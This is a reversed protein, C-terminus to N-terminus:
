LSRSGYRIRPDVILYSLDVALNVLIFVGAGFLTVGQVIPLDRTSIGRLALAGLGPWGFVTEVLVAGGLLYGVQAGIVTIIPILANKLVHRVLVPRPPLGKAWATRMYDQHVVELMTSRTIRAVLAVARAALALAPLVLHGILDLGGGGIPSYMGAAPLWRLELSFVVMLVIGLWFAPMGVGVTAALMTVRDFISNRRVAAIMGAIVGLISSILLASVTLIFTARFKDFLEPLVPRHTWISQGLDGRVVKGLWIVYQAPLPRDLGLDRRIAALAAPTADQGLMLQAPDGPALHIALFVVLSAGLAVPLTLILRRLVYYGL